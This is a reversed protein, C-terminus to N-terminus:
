AELIATLKERLDQRDTANFVEEIIDHVKKHQKANSRLSWEASGQLLKLAMVPSDVKLNRWAPTSVDMDKATYSFVSIIKKVPRADGMVLFESWLCDLAGPDTPPPSQFDQAEKLTELVLDKEHGTYQSALDRVQPVFSPNERLIAAFLHTLTAGHNESIDQNDLLIKMAPILLHADKHQYYFTAWQSVDQTTKLEATESIKQPLGARQEQVPSDKEAKEIEDKYFTLAVGEVDIKKYQDTEELLKGYVTKGSKLTLTESFASVSFLFGCALFVALIRIGKM